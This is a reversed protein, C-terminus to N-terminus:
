PRNSQDAAAVLRRASEVQDEVSLMIEELSESTMRYPAAALQLCAVQAEPSMQWWGLSAGKSAILGAIELRTQADDAFTQQEGTQLEAALRNALDAIWDNLLTIDEYPERFKTRLLLSLLLQKGSRGSFTISDEGVEIGDRLKM